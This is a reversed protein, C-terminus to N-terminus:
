IPDQSANPESCISTADGGGFQGTDAVAQSRMIRTNSKTAYCYCPLSDQFTWKLNRNVITLASKRMHFLTSRLCRQCAICHSLPTALGFKKPPGFFKSPIFHKIKPSCCYIKPSVAMWLSFHSSKRFINPPM